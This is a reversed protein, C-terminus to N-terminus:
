VSHFVRQQSLVHSPTVSPFATMLRNEALFSIYLCICIKRSCCLLHPLGQVPLRQASTIKTGMPGTCNLSFDYKTLQRLFPVLGGRSIWPYPFARNLSARVRRSFHPPAQEWLSMICLLTRWWLTLLSHRGTGPSFSSVTKVRTAGSVTDTKVDASCM